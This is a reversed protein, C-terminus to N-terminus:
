ILKFRNSTVCISYYIKEQLSMQRKPILVSVNSNPVFEFSSVYSYSHSGQGDTSVYITNDPYIYKDDIQTKDV